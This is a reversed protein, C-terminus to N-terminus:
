GYSLCSHVLSFRVALDARLLDVLPMALAIEPVVIMHRSAAYAVIERYDDHTYFGGPDGGVATNSALETLKPRSHLQIRWGQDDSLHLHLANLKLGAAHDIYAKVTDVPHFHRAVDLMVGRYAFRPADDIAVAPVIWDDGDRAVLQGLTQVGYFLGAPDAGTVTVSAEDAVLRYSEAAGGREIALTVLPGDGSGDGYQYSVGSTGLLKRWVVYDAADSAGNSNYDGRLGNTVTVAYDEVEGNPAFGGVGLGGVSSFRFRAFVVDGITATAPVNIPVVNVGANILVSVLVQEGAVVRQGDLAVVPQNGIEAEM